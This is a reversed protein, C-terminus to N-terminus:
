KVNTTPEFEVIAAFTQTKSSIADYFVGKVVV